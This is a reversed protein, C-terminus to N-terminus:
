LRGCPVAAAMSSDVWLSVARSVGDFYHLDNRNHSDHRWRLAGSAADVAVVNTSPTTFYVLRDYLIPTAECASRTWDTM